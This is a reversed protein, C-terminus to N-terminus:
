DNVWVPEGECDRDPCFYGKYDRGNKSTGERFTMVKGCTGCKPPDDPSSTEATGGRRPRAVGGAKQVKALATGAQSLVEEVTAGTEAVEALVQRGSAATLSGREVLELVRALHGPTLATDSISGSRSGVAELVSRMVWNSVVKPKSYQRLTEEFFEAIEREETLM